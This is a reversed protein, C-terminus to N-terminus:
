TVNEKPNPCSQDSVLEGVARHAAELERLDCCADSAGHWDCMDVKAKLYQILTARHEDYTM